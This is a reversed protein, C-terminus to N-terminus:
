SRAIMRQSSGSLDLVSARFDGGGGAQAAATQAAAMLIGASLLPLTRVAAGMRRIHKKSGAKAPHHCICSLM